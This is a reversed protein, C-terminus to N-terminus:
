TIGRGPNNRDYGTVNRTRGLVRRDHRIAGASMVSKFTVELCVVAAQTSRMTTQAANIM